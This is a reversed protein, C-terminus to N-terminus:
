LVAYIPVFVNLLLNVLAKKKSVEKLFDYRYGLFFM